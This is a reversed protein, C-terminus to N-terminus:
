RGRKVSRGYSVGPRTMGALIEGSDVELGLAELTLSPESGLVWELADLSIVPDTAKLDQRAQLLVAAGVRLIGDLRADSPIPDPRDSAM